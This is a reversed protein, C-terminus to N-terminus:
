FGLPRLGSISHMNCATWHQNAQTYRFSPWIRKSLAESNRFPLHLCIRQCSPRLSLSQQKGSRATEAAHFFIDFVILIVFNIKEMQMAKCCKRKLTAPNRTRWLSLITETRSPSIFNQKLHQSMLAHFSKEPTPLLPFHRQWTDLPPFPPFSISSFAKFSFDPFVKFLLVQIIKFSQPSKPKRQVKLIKILSEQLAQLSM